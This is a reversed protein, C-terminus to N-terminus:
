QSSKMVSVRRKLHGCSLIRQCVRAFDRRKVALEEDDRSGHLVRVQRLVGRRGRTGQRHTLPPRPRQGRGGVHDRHARRWPFVRRPQARLGAEPLLASLRGRLRETSRHIHPPPPSILAPFTRTTHTHTYIHTHAHTLTNYAQHTNLVCACLTSSDVHVRSRTHLEVPNTTNQPKKRQKSKGHAALLPVASSQARAVLVTGVRRGESAVVDNQFMQQNDDQNEVCAHFQGQHCAEAAGDQSVRAYQSQNMHGQHDIDSWRVRYSTVHSAGSPRQEPVYRQAKVAAHVPLLTERVYDPIPAPTRLEKNIYVFSFVHSCLLVQRGRETCCHVERYIQVSTRGLANLRFRVLLPRGM